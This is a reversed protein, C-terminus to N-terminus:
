VYKGHQHATYVLAHINEKPTHYPLDCGPGLIFHGNKGLSDIAIMANKVVEEKSGNAMVGSPDINGILCVNEKLKRIKDIDNKYDIEYAAARTELVHSFISTLKGCMHIVLRVGKRKLTNVVKKQFPLSFTYYYKPSCLEPGGLPDGIGIIHAGAKSQELCFAIVVETLFDMLKMIDETKEPDTLQILFNEIGMIQGALTFPGLEAEARVFVSDGIKNVIAKTAHILEGTLSGRKDFEPIELKVWESADSIIYEKVVPPVNDFMHVKCGLAEAVSVVGNQIHVMDHDFEEVAQIHLKAMEEGNRFFNGLNLRNDGAISMFNILCVPVRDPLMGNLVQEVRERKNIM